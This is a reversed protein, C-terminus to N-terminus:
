NSTSITTFETVKERKKERQTIPQIDVFEWSINEYCANFDIDFWGYKMLVVWM